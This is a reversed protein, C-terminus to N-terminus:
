RCQEDVEGSTGRVAAPQGAIAIPPEVQFVKPLRM